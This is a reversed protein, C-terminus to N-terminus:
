VSTILDNLRITEMKGIFAGNVYLKLCQGNVKFRTGDQGMIEIAGHFKVGTMTFPGSWRSKLKGPFLRLRSNFLLVKDGVQFDRRLIAKDHM